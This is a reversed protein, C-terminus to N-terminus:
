YKYGSKDGGWWVAYKKYLINHVSKQVAKKMLIICGQFNGPPATPKLISCQWLQPEPRQQPTAHTQDRAWSSGRAAPTAGGWCVRDKEVYNREKKRRKLAASVAYPPDWALPGILATAAPRRWLWLLAPDSGRRRDVGCSM